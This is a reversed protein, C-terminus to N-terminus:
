KGVGPPVGLAALTNIAETSHDINGESALKVHQEIRFKIM